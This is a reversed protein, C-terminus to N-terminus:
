EGQLVDEARETNWCEFCKTINSITYVFNEQQCIPCKEEWSNSGVVHCQMCQSTSNGLDVWKQEEVGCFSCDYTFISSTVFGDDGAEAGESQQISQNLKDNQFMYEQAQRNLKNLKFAQTWCKQCMEVNNRRWLEPQESKCNACFQASISGHPGLTTRYNECNTCMLLGISYVYFTQMKFSCFFCGLVKIDVVNKPGLNKACKHCSNEKDRYVHAQNLCKKCKMPRLSGESLCVSCQAFRAEREPKEEKMKNWQTM